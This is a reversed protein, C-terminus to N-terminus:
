STHVIIPHNMGVFGKQGKRLDIEKTHANAMEQPETHADM